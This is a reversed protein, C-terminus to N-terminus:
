KIEGSPLLELFNDIAPFSLSYAVPTQSSPKAVQLLYGIGYERASLLVKETDDALLTREREYPLLAALRHWFLPDEKALGVEEACVIRDFHDRLATKAMKIALTKSHANTVLWIRKGERRCYELFDVVHPHVQILHEIEIKLSPIDLGLEASWYDLDTWALTGEQGKYSALLREKAGALSLGNREAYVAPLHQEWFFDDFHRDLLTGDMDLMVTDIASWDLQLPIKVSPM